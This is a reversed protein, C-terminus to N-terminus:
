IPYVLGLARSVLGPRKLHNKLLQTAATLLVANKHAFTLPEIKVRCM